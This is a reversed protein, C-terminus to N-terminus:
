GLTPRSRITVCGGTEPTAVEELLGGNDLWFIDIPTRIINYGQVFNERDIVEALWWTKRESIFRM